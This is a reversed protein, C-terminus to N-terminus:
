QTQINLKIKLKSIIYIFSRKFSPLIFHKALEAFKLKILHNERLGDLASLVRKTLSLRNFILFFTPVNLWDYPPNVKIDNINM